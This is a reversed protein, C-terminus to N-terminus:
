PRVNADINTSVYEVFSLPGLLLDPIYDVLDCAEEIHFQERREQPAKTNLVHPVFGFVTVNICEKIAFTSWREDKALSTTKLVAVFPM